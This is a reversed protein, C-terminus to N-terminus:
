RAAVFKPMGELTELYNRGDRKSLAKVGELSMEHERRYLEMLSAKLRIMREEVNPYTKGVATVLDTVEFTRLENLDVGLALLRQLALDAKRSPGGEWILFSYIFEELPEHKVLEPKHKSSLKKVLAALAKSQDEAKSM